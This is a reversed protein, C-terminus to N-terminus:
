AQLLQEAARLGSAYAGHVTAFDNGSTAEGALFLRGDVPQALARRMAPDYGVANFSYSGFAFPDAGWRTIQAAVPDPSGPYMRRAVAMASAVVGADDTGDVTRGLGAQAFALLVPQSTIGAFNVWQVWPPGGDAIYEIWDVDGDWFVENFRLFVKNLVGMGIGDIAELVEDPLGPDFAIGGRQLVGLPVTLLVRSGAYQAAGTTVRVGDRDWGIRTVRQGTAIPLGDALMATIADYGGPLVADQGPFGDVDDYWWASLDDAAGAYEAEISSAVVFDIVHQPIGALPGGRKGALVARAVSTDQPAAGAAEISDAVGDETQAIRTQQGTDLPVGAADYAISSEYSTAVLGAGAQRALDTIPNGDIGHIWSAGLDIPVGPWARSTWLRGGVRDRAEIVQVPVGAARLTQAAALGAIGAGVILVPDRDASPGTRTNSCGAAAAAAAAALLFRRRTM